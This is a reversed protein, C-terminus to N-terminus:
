FSIKSICLRWRKVKAYEWRPISQGDVFQMPLCLTDGREQKEAAGVPRITEVGKELHKARARNDEIKFPRLRVIQGVLANPGLDPAIELGSNVM